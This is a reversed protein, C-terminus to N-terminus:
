RVEIVLDVADDRFQRGAPRDLAVDLGLVPLFEFFGAVVDDVLLV